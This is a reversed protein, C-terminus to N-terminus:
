IRNVASPKLAMTIELGKYRIKLIFVIVDV